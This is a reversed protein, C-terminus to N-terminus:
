NLNNKISHWGICDHYIAKVYFVALAAHDLPALNLNHVFKPLPPPPVLHTLVQLVLPTCLCIGRPNTHISCQDIHNHWLEVTKKGLPGLPLALVMQFPSKARGQEGKYAPNITTDNLSHSRYWKLVPLPVM